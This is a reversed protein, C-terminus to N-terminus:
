HAGDTIKPFVNKGLKWMHTPVNLVQRDTGPKTDWLEMWM